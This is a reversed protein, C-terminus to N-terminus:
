KAYKLRGDQREQKGETREKRERKMGNPHKVNMKSIFFTVGKKIM